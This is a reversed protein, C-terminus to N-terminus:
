RRAGQDLDTTCGTGELCVRVYGSDRIWIRTTREFLPVRECCEVYAHTPRDYDSV